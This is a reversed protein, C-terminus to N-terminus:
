RPLRVGLTELRANTFLGHPDRREFVARAEALGPTVRAIAAADPRHFKGWHPRAGFPALAEEISPLLAAVGAPDDRWTFHIGLVDQGFAGSLLLEDAAATRLESVLLLPDLRPGLPRIAALAEAARAFPVFYETQVEEGASPTADLRFHPLREHWPGPIGGQVTVNGELGAALDAGSQALRAAGGVHEPAPDDERELRTKVWIRGADEAEWRTFVSVSYGASFVSEPDGLLAEWGLGDYVDQRMRFSPEVDLEVRTVIGAAGLGVALAAFDPDGREVRHEEGDGGVLELARVSTTLVGNRRGSGHTGTATAGAVSIHPLSGMNHLALGHEELAVALVGYRTGASVSAWGAAADVRLEPDTDVLTVLTGSTDALDNFSHRTGLARVREGARLAARVEEVVEEPSSASVCRPAGFAHTGAWTSGATTV